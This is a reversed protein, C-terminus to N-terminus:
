DTIKKKFIISKPLFVKFAPSHNKLFNSKKIFGIYNDFNTKIKIWDKNKSLIKFKEGYLIQSSIESKSSPKSYVNGISKNFFNNIM